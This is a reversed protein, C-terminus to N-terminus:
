NLRRGKEQAQLQQNISLEELFSVSTHQTNDGRFDFDDAGRRKLVVSFKTKGMADIDLDFEDDVKQKRSNSNYRALFIPTFFAPVCECFSEFPLGIYNEKLERIGAIDPENSKNLHDFTILFHTLSIQNDLSGWGKFGEQLEKYESGPIPAYGNEWVDIISRGQLPHAPPYVLEKYAERVKAVHETNSKRSSLQSDTAYDRIAVYDAGSNWVMDWFRKQEEPPQYHVVEHIVSSLVLVSKGSATRHHEIAKIAEDLNSTFIIGESDSSRAHQIMEDSIDYGIYVNGQIGSQRDLDRKSKLVGGGCCGVDFFIGVDKPIHNFIALKADLNECMGTEYASVDTVSGLNRIITPNFASIGRATEESLYVESM